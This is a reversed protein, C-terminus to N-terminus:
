NAEEWEIRVARVPLQALAESSDSRAWVFVDGSGDDLSIYCDSWERSGAGIHATVRAAPVRENAFGRNPMEVQHFHVCTQTDVRGVSFMCM